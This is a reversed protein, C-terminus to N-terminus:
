LLGAFRLFSLQRYVLYAGAALLGIASVPQLYPVLRKLHRVLLGKGVAAALTVGLLVAGMGAAYAFFVVLSSLFGGSALAAGVVVLFVPLTCGASALAYAVGYVFMSRSSRGEPVRVSPLGLTFSRGALLVAGAAILVVGVALALWPIFRVATRTGTTIVAGAIGFVVLFGAIVLSAVTLARLIRAATPMGEAEPEGLFFSVFAPLMAFGCPNVTSLSGAGFALLIPFGDM